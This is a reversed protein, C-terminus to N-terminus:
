RRSHSEGSKKDLRSGALAIAVFALRLIVTRANSVIRHSALGALNRAQCNEGLIGRKPELTAM